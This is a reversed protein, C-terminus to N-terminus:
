SSKVCEWFVRIKDCKRPIGKDWRVKGFYVEARESKGFYGEGMESEQSVRRGDCMGSIGM